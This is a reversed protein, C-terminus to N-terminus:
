SPMAPKVPKIPAKRPAQISAVQPRSAVTAYSPTPPHIVPDDASARPTDASPPIAPLGRPGLIPSGSLFSDFHNQTATAIEKYLANLPNRLRAPLKRVADSQLCEDLLATLPGYILQGDALRDASRQLSISLANAFSPFPKISQPPILPPEAM